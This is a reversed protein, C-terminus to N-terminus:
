LDIELAADFHTYYKTVDGTGYCQRFLDVVKEIDNSNTLLTPVITVSKGGASLQMQPNAQLNRYWQTHSGYVPLLYLRSGELVFWIPLTIAKGSKRGTITIDVENTSNLADQFTDATM